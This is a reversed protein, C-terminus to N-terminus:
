PQSTFFLRHLAGYTEQMSDLLICFVWFGIALVQWFRTKEVIGLLGMAIATLNSNRYEVAFPGTSTIVLVCVPHIIM